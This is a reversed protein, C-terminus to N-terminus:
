STHDIRQRRSERRAICLRSPIKGARRRRNKSRADTPTSAAHPPLLEVEAGDDDTVVAGPGVVDAAAVM